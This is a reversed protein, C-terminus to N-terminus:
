PQMRTDAILELGRPYYRVVTSPLPHRPYSLPPSPAMERPAVATDRQRGVCGCSARNNKLRSGAALIDRADRRDDFYRVSFRARRVGFDLL